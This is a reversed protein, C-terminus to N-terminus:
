RGFLRYRSSSCPSPRQTAPHLESLHMMLLLYMDFLILLCVKKAPDDDEFDSLWRTLDHSAKPYKSIHYHNSPSTRQRRRRALGLRVAIVRQVVADIRAILRTRAEQVVM